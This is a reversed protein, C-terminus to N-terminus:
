RIRVSRSRAAAPLLARNGYFRVLVRARGRRRARVTASFTCNRQLGVRRTVAGVRVAVVGAGCAQARTVGRPLLVRGTVRVRRRSRRVVRVRLSRVRLRAAQSRPPSSSGAVPAPGAGAVDAGRALTCENAVDGKKPDPVFQSPPLTRGQEVWAEM